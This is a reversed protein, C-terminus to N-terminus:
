APRYARMAIESADREYARLAVAQQAFGSCVTTSELEPCGDCATAKAKARALTLVRYAIGAGSTLFASWAWRRAILFSVLAGATVGTGFRVGDKRPRSLGGYISPRSAGALSGAAMLWLAPAARSLALGPAAVATAGGVAVGSYMAVCSRCIRLRGIALVGGGLRECLPDHAWRFWWDHRLRLIRYRAQTLLGAM